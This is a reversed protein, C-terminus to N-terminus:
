STALIISEPIITTMKGSRPSFYRLVASNSLYFDLSLFVLNCYQLIPTSSYQLIPTIYNSIQYKCNSISYCLIPSSSHQLKFNSIQYKCDYIELRCNAIQYKCNSISYCLVPTSSHQLVSIFMVGNSWCEM